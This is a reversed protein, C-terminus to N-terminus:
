LVLLNFITHITSAQLGPVLREEREVVRDVSRELHAGQEVHGRHVGLLQTEAPDLRPWHIWGGMFRDRVLIMYTITLSPGLLSM